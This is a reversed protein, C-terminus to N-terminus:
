FFHRLRHAYNWEVFLFGWRFKFPLVISQHQDKQEKSQSVEMRWVIWVHTFNLGPIKLTKPPYASLRLSQDDSSSYSLALRETTCRNKNMPFNTFVWKSKNWKGSVLSKISLGRSCPHKFKKLSPWFPLKPEKLPGSINVHLKWHPPPTLAGGTKPTQPGSTARPVCNICGQELNKSWEWSKDSDANM